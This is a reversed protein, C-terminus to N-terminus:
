TIVRSPMNRNVSVPLSNPMSMSLLCVMCESTLTLSVGFPITGNESRLHLYEDGPTPFEQYPSQGFGVFVGICWILVCMWGIVDRSTWGVVRGWLIWCVVLKHNIIIRPCIAWITLVQGNQLLKELHVEGAQMDDSHVASILLQVLDLLLLFLDLILLTIVSDKALPWTTDGATQGARVFLIELLSSSTVLLILAGFRFTQIRHRIRRASDPSDKAALALHLSLLPLRFIILSHLLTLLSRLLFKREKTSNYGRTDGQTAERSSSYHHLSTALVLLLQRRDVQSGRDFIVYTRRLDLGDPMQSIKM